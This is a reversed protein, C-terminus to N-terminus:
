RPAPLLQVERAGSDAGSDPGSREIVGQIALLVLVVALTALAIHKPGLRRSSRPREREESWIEQTERREQSGAQDSWPHDWPHRGLKSSASPLRVRASPRPADPDRAIERTRRPDLTAELEPSRPDAAIREFVCTPEDEDDAPELRSASSCAARSAGSAARRAAGSASRQAGSAARSAAPLPGSLEHDIEFSLDPVAELAFPHLQAAVSSADAFRDVPNKALMRRLVWAFAPPVESPLEREPLARHLHADLIRLTPGRFPPAGYILEWLLIGLAYVDAAPTIPQGQVLEPAVHTPTMILPLKRGAESGDLSPVLGFGLLAVLKPLGKGAEVVVSAPELGGHVRRLAHAPALAEAIQEVLTVADAFGTSSAARDFGIPRDLEALTQGRTMSSTMPMVVFPRGDFDVGADVLEPIGASAVPSSAWAEALVERTRAGAFERRLRHVLVEPGRDGQPDSSRGLDRCAYLEGLPHGRWLGDVLHRSAIVEGRVLPDTVRLEAKGGNRRHDRIRM